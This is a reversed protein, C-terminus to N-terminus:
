GEMRGVAAVLNVTCFSMYDIIQIILDYRMYLNIGKLYMSEILRNMVLVVCLSM